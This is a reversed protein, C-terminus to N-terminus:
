PLCARPGACRVCVGASKSPVIISGITHYTKVVTMDKKVRLMGIPEGEANLEVWPTADEFDKVLIATNGVGPSNGILAHKSDSSNTDPSTTIFIAKKFGDIKCKLVDGHSFTSALLLAVTLLARIIMARVQGALPAAKRQRHRFGSIKAGDAQFARWSEPTFLDIFYAM